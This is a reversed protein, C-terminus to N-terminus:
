DLVADCRVGNREMRRRLTKLADIQIQRVRERTVGIEQGIDELTRQRHGHLGFRWEIVERQKDGLENLWRDVLERLLARQACRQPEGDRAARLSDLIGPEDGSSDGRLTVCHHLALLRDVTDVDKGTERAIDRATPAQQEDHHLKRGARLCTNIDKLVHVPLRVTRAQNMIAREISQRIWWTAYTSFRFGREPDFKEVAHILGLNGEEILDSLPLGRHVYNRAIRVVLRLNSEIMAQRAREDGCQIRRGLAVEEEATLLQSARIDHLYYRVADGSTRAPPPASGNATGNGDAPRNSFTSM